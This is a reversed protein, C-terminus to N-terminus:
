STIGTQCKDKGGARCRGRGTGPAHCFGFEIARRRLRDAGDLYDARDDGPHCIGNSGLRQVDRSADECQGNSIEGSRRVRGSLAFWLCNTQPESFIAGAEHPDIRNAM